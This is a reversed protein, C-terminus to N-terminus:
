QPGLERIDHIADQLEHKKHEDLRVWEEPLSGIEITRRWM